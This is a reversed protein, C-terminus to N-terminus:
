SWLDPPSNKADLPPQQPKFYEKNLDLNQNAKLEKASGAGYSDPSVYPNLDNNSM